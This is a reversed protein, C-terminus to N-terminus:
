LKMLKVMEAGMSQCAKFYSKSNYNWHYDYEVERSTYPYHFPRTDVKSVNGLFKPYKAPDAINAQARILNLSNQNGGARAMGTNGVMGLMNPANLDKRLDQIL